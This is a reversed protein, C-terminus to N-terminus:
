KWEQSSSQVVRENGSDEIKKLEIFFSRDSNDLENLYELHNIICQTAIDDDIQKDCLLSIEKSYSKWRIHKCLKNFWKVIVKSYIENASSKTDASYQEKVYNGSEDVFEMKVVWFM